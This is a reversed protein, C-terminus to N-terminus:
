PMMSVKASAPWGSLFFPADLCDKQLKAYNEYIAASSPAQNMAGYKSNPVYYPLPLVAAVGSGAFAGGIPTCLQTSSLTSLTSLAVLYDAAAQLWLM